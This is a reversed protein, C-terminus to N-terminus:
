KFCFDQIDLFVNKNTQEVEVMEELRKIQSELKNLIKDKDALGEQNQVEAVNRQLTDIIEKLNRIRGDTKTM